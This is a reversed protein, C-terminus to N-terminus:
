KSIKPLQGNEIMREAKYFKDAIDPDRDWLCGDEEYDGPHTILIDIKGTNPNYECITPEYSSNGFRCKFLIKGQIIYITEIERRNKYLLCNETIFKFVNQKDRHDLDNGNGYVKFNVSITKKASKISFKIIEEKCAINKKHMNMKNEM